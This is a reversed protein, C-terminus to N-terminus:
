LTVVMKKSAKRFFAMCRQFIQTTLEVDEMAGHTKGTRALGLKELFTDLNFRNVTPDSEFLFFMIAWTDITHYDWPIDKETKILKLRKANETIMNYDYLVNHGCLMPKTSEKQKDNVSDVWEMYHRYAVKPEVGIDMAKEYSEKAVQIAKASAIEPKQPRIFVHFKGAHHPQYDWGNLAIAALETVEHVLPDLGTTETDCSIINRNNM